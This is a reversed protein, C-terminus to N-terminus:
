GSVSPNKGNTVYPQDYRQHKDEPINVITELLLEGQTSTFIAASTSGGQADTPTTKLAPRKQAGTPETEETTKAKVKDLFKQFDQMTKWLEPNLNEQKLTNEAGAIAMQLHKSFNVNTHNGEVQNGEIQSPKKEVKDSVAKLARKWDASRALLNTYIEIFDDGQLKVLFALTLLVQTRDGQLTLVHKAGCNDRVIQRQAETVDIYSYCANAIWGVLLSSLFIIQGALTGQPAILIQALFLLQMSM